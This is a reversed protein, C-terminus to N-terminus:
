NSASPYIRHFQIDKGYLTADDQAAIFETIKAADDTLLVTQDAGEGSVQGKLKGATVAAIFAKDDIFHADLKSEGEMQYAVFVYTAAGGSDEGSSDAMQLNVIHRSGVDSVFGQYHDAEGGGDKKHNVTYVDIMGQGGDFVHLFLRGDEWDSQWLGNLAPDRVAKAPDGAPNQSEPVCGILALTLFALGCRALLGRGAWSIRPLHTM